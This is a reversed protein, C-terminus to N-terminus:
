LPWFSPSQQCNGDRGVIMEYLDNEYYKGDVTRNSVFIGRDTDCYSFAPVGDMIVANKDLPLINVPYPLPQPDLATPRSENIAARMLRRSRLEAFGNSTTYWLEQGGESRRFAAAYDDGETNLEHFPVPQASVGQVLALLAAVTAPLLLGFIRGGSRVSASRSVTGYSISM